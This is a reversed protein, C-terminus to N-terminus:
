RNMEQERRQMLRRLVENDGAAGSASPANTATASDPPPPEGGVIAGTNPDIMLVSSGESGPAGPEPEPSPETASRNPQFAATPTRRFGSSSSSSSSSSAYSRSSSETPTATHWPGEDERRMQQGVALTEQNTGSALKVYSPAIETVKYDAITDGPQVSKRYTGDFFAFPGQDYRMTGVLTFYDIRATRRRTESARPSYGRTRRPNFINRDPILRFEAYNARQLPANTQAPAPWAAALALLVPTWRTLRKGAFGALLLTARRM